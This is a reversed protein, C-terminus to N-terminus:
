KRISWLNTTIDKRFTSLRDQPLTEITPVSHLPFLPKALATTISTCPRFVFLLFPNILNARQNFNHFSPFINLFSTFRYPVTLYPTNFIPWNKTTLISYKLTYSPASTTHFLSLHHLHDSSILTKTQDFPNTSMNEFRVIRNQRSIPRGRITSLHPYGWLYTWAM